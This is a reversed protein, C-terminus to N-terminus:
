IGLLLTHPPKLLVRNVGNAVGSHLSVDIRKTIYIYEVIPDKEILCFTRTFLKFAVRLLFNPSVFICDRIYKSM